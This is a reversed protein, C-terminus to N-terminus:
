HRQYRLHAWELEEWCLPMATFRAVRCHERDPMGEM